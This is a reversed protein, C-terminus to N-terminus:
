QLAELASKGLLIGPLIEGPMVWVLGRVLDEPWPGYKAASRGGTEECNESKRSHEVSHIKTFIRLRLGDCGTELEWSNFGCVDLNM